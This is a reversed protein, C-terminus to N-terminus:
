VPPGRVIIANALIFSIIADTEIFFTSLIRGNLFVQHTDQTLFVENDLIHDNYNCFSFALISVFLIFSFFIALRKLLNEM